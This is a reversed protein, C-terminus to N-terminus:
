TLMHYKILLLRTSLELAVQFYKHMVGPDCSRRIKFRIRIM